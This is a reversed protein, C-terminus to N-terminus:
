LGVGVTSSFLITDVGYWLDKSDFPGMKGFGKWESDDRHTRWGRSDETAYRFSISDDGWTITFQGSLHKSVYKNDIHKEQNKPHLACVLHYAIPTCFLSDKFSLFQVM